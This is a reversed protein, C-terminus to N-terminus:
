DAEPCVLRIDCRGRSTGLRARDTANLEAHGQVVRAPGVSVTMARDINDLGLRGFQQRLTDRIYDSVRGSDQSMGDLPDAIVFDFTIGCTTTRCEIGLASIRLRDLQGVGFVLREEVVSAWAPDKPEAALREAQRGSGPWDRVSFDTEAAPEPMPARVHLFVGLAALSTALLVSALILPKGTM